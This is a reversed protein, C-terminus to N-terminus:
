GVRMALVLGRWHLVAERSLKYHKATKDIDMKVLRQKDTKSIDWLDNFL